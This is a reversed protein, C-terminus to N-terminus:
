PITLIVSRLRELRDKLDPVASAAEPYDQVLTLIGNDPL